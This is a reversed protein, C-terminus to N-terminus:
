LGHPNCYVGRFLLKGSFYTFYVTSYAHYWNNEMEAFSCVEDLAM